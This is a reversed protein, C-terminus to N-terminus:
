QDNQKYSIITFFGTETMSHDLQNYCNDFVTNIEKESKYRFLGPHLNQLSDKLLVLDKKLLEPPIKQIHNIPSQGYSKIILMLSAILFLINRLYTKM